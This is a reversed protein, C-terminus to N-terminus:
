IVLIPVINYVTYGTHSINVDTIKNNAITPAMIIVIFFAKVLGGLGRPKVTNGTCLPKNLLNNVAM